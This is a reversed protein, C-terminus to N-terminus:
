QLSEKVVKEAADIAEYFNKFADIGIGKVNVYWHQWLMPDLRVSAIPERILGRVKKGFKWENNGFFQWEMESIRDIKPKVRYEIM